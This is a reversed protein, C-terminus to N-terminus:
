AEHDEKFLVEAADIGFSENIREKLQQKMRENEARLQTVENNLNQNAKVMNGAAIMQSLPSKANDDGLRSHKLGSFYPNHSSMGGSRKVASNGEADTGQMIKNYDNLFDLRMADLSDNPLQGGGSGLKRGPSMAARALSAQAKNVIIGREGKENSAFRTPSAEGRPNSSNLGLM